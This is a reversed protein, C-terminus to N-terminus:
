KKRRGLLTRLGLLLVLGSLWQGNFSGGGSKSAAVTKEFRINRIKIQGNSSTRKKYIWSLRHKGATLKTTHSASEKRAGTVARVREGDVFYILENEDADFPLMFDFSFDGPGEIETSLMAAEDDGLYDCYMSFGDDEEIWNLEDSFWPFDDDWDMEVLKQGRLIVSVVASDALTIDLSGKSDEDDSPQYNLAIECSAAPALEVKCNDAEVSFDAGMVNIDAIAISSDTTNELTLVIRDGEDEFAFLDVSSPLNFSYANIDFDEPVEPTEPVEPIEPVEPTEPTEPVEPTVLTGEVYQSIWDGYNEVRAYVGPYGPEACGQGFSVIGVQQWQGNEQYLLPGGSDGQCSDKGGEEYGACLMNETITSAGYNTACQENSVFPVQTELLTNPFSNGTTSTNGWGMVMLQTGVSIGKMIDPTVVKVTANIAPSTLQLLAIDHDDGQRKPHIIIKSVKIKQEKDGSGSLDYEGVSALLSAAQEQEVCHAATLVWGKSILSAGCFHEGSSDQLSVMWPYAGPKTSEGGIIRVSPQANVHSVAVGVAIALLSKKLTTKKM